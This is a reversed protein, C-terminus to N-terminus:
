QQAAMFEKVLPDSTIIFYVSGTGPHTKEVVGIEEEKQDPSIEMESNLKVTAIIGLELTQKAEKALSFEEESVAGYKNFAWYLIKDHAMTTPADFLGMLEVVMEKLQKKDAEKNQKYLALVRDTKKDVIVYLGDDVFKYTGEYAGKEPHQDAIKKQSNNLQEGIVYNGMGLKLSVIDTLLSDATKAEVTSYFTIIVLLLAPILSGIRNPRGM